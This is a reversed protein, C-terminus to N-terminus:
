GDIVVRITNGGDLNDVFYVIYGDITQESHKQPKFTVIPEWKDDGQRKSNYQELHFATVTEPIAFTMWAEESWVTDVQYGSEELEGTDSNVIQYFCNGTSNVYSEETTMQKYFTEPTAEVLEGAENVTYAVSATAIIDQVAPPTEEPVNDPLSPAVYIELGLINILIDKLSMGMVPANMAFNGIPNKVLYNETFLVSDLKSALSAEVESKVAFTSKDAQYESTDLKGSIDDAVLYQKGEVWEETAYGTFDVPPHQINSIADALEIKTALDEHVHDATAYSNLADASIYGADNTFASVATPVEPIDIGAIASAVYDETALGATNPLESKLAYEEHVHEKDAKGSIDQHETLYQEHTHDKAAYEEHTHVVDAKGSIDTIYQDHTHEKEAYEEHSHEKDAKGTAVESLADLADKNTTILDGLEKLTDYAAGAGNLLENKVAEAAGKADYLEDHKHEKDAKADVVTSVAGDVYTTSALGEISPIEPTDTLDKYSGSFKSYGNLADATLYEEHTHDKDAKDDVNTIFGQEGVWAQTAMDAISESKVYDVLDSEVLYDTPLADATIYGADNTFASVNAPIAEATIYGSDNTLQSVLTPIESKTALAALSEKLAYEEHAHEKDAKGTAVTELAEITSKNNAILDGLEKLTDYAEGAGNLLDNKVAEAAGKVEYLDDHNHNVDAKGSIDQHETLYESHTHEKDAKTSIDPLESKKAYEELSQHETLYQAHEHEKAAYEEHTHDKDAKGSIDQHETLYEDHKHDVAAYEEHTHGVDAKGSLDVPPIDALTIYGADNTFAGVNTPVEPIVINDVAKQIETTVFSEKAYGTLDVDKDALQAKAIETTVFEETALGVLASKEAYVTLDIQGIATTVDEKTAYADLSQHETLYNADNELESVKTPVVPLDSKKAYDELSQHEKLFGQENVIDLTIFDKIDDKSAFTATADERNKKDAAVIEADVYEITAHKSLDTAPIAEIQDMVFKETALGEISPLESKLAYDGLPIEAIKEGVYTETAYGEFSPAEYDTIDALTHKHEADAKDAHTHEKDAKSTALTELAAIAEGESIILDGLEKLTDYAGGAGNLLENKVAEAAGKVEYLDDHRHDVDAKGSIDQHETIYETHKHDALSYGEHSHEKSAYVDSHDHTASAYEDHTHNIGAYVDDHNHDSDAKDSVDTIYGQAKVWEEKAYGTLDTTPFEISGFKDNVLQETETKNYYNSLDTEPVEAATIYGADNELASVKAPVEPIEIEAIKTDVYSISALEKIEDKTALGSLDVDKDALEAEAIKNTVFAETVYGKAEVDPMTIFDSVDPINIAAIKETVFQESALGDISPIDDLKAYGDLTPIKSEVTELADKTALHSIDQHETIYGADNDLETVKTPVKVEAIKSDVYTESALGIISPIELDNIKDTVFQESALGEISPITELAADIRVFEEGMALLKVDNAASQQQVAALADKTALGAVQTDIQEKTYYADLDVDKDDLEAKAIMEHVFTETALGAVSPLEDKTAFNSVDPIEIESIKETVFEETALGTLPHEIAAFKEDVYDTSALGSISDSTLYGKDALTEETVYNDPIETIFKSTDPIDSKKAYEALDPQPIAKIAELLEAKTTYNVLSQHETLFGRGDLETNLQELTLYEDPIESIFGLADIEGKTYVEALEAYKSLESKGAFNKANLLELKAKGPNNADAICIYVCATDVCLYWCGLDVKVGAKLQGNQDLLETSLGCRIRFNNFNEIM